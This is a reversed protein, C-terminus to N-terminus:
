ISPLGSLPSSYNLFSFTTSKRNWCVRCWPSVKCKLCIWCSWNARMHGDFHKYLTHTHTCYRSEAPKLIQCRFESPCRTNVCKGEKAWLLFENWFELNQEQKLDWWSITQSGSLECHRLASTLFSILRLTSINQFPLSRSRRHVITQVQQNKKLNSKLILCCGFNPERHKKKKLQRLYSISFSLIKSSILKLNFPDSMLMWSWCSCCFLFCKLECM